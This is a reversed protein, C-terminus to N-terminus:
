DIDFDLNDESDIDGKELMPRSSSHLTYFKRPSRTLRLYKMWVKEVKTEPLVSGQIVEVFRKEDKTSPSIDGDTLQLLTTGLQTLIDAEAISFDGSKKFGRPFNKRDIFNGVTNGISHLEM